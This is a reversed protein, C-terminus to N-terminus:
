SQTAIKCLALLQRSALTNPHEPGLAPSAAAAGAVQEIIPLAEALRGLDTLVDALMLRSTLTNPHEPGFAPNAPTAEAVQEIIPLAEASRGLARLVFALAHRSALTEPHDPGLAPNTAAGRVVCDIEAFADAYYGRHRLIEARLRRARLTQLANQGLQRRFLIVARDSLRIALHYIGQYTLREAETEAALAEEVEEAAFRVKVAESDITTLAPLFPLQAHAETRRLTVLDDYLEKAEKNAPWLVIAANAFSEGVALGASRLEGVAHGSAWDARHLLLRSIAEGEQELWGQLARNALADNGDRWEKQAAALATEALRGELEASRRELHETRIRAEQLAQDRRAVDDRLQEIM